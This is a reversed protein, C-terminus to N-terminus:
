KASLLSMGGTQFTINYKFNPSWFSLHTHLTMSDAFIELEFDSNEKNYKHFRYRNDSLKKMSHGQIM